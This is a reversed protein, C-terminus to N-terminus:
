RRAVSLTKEISSTTSALAYQPYLPVALVRAVGQRKLEGLAEAVSPSGYRMAPVVPVASLRSAVLKTLSLHFHKLPSGQPDRSSGRWIAQYARASKFSRIPLILVYVLLARWLWAIDVVYPDMLFERLYRAVSGPRAQNPTGLNILLVGTKMKTEAERM